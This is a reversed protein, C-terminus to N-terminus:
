ATGVRTDVFITDGDSDTITGTSGGLRVVHLSGDTDDVYVVELADDATWDISTVSTPEAEGASTLDTESASGGAYSLLTVDNSTVFPIRDEEGTDFQRPAGIGIGGDVDADEGTDTVTDNDIFRIGESLGVFVLDTDGDDNSDGTGAIATAEVPNSNALVQQQDGDLGVRYITAEGNPGVDSTNLYFVSSEGRWQGIAVVTGYSSQIPSTAADTALTQVEGSADVIRLRNSWDVYPIERIGDGDLDVEKPGIASAEVGYRTVTGDPAISSLESTNNDAFVVEEHAMVTPEPEEPAIDRSENVVLERAGDGDDDRLSVIMPGGTVTRNAVPVSTRLSLQVTVDVAQSEAVITGRAPQNDATPQNALTMTYEGGAIRDPLWVTVRLVGDTDTGALRNADGLGSALQEAAVGLEEDAIRERQDEVLTGGAALLGTILIASIALTLSYGLTTSVGREDTLVSWGAGPTRKSM